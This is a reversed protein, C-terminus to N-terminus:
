GRAPLQGFFGVIRRLRGDAAVEGVDLGALAVAGDPGVLEWGAGLGARDARGPAGPRARELGRPLQRHHQDPRDRDDRRTEETSDPRRRRGSPVRGPSASCNGTLYHVPRAPAPM